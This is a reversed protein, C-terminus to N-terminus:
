SAAVCADAGARTKVTIVAKQPKDGLADRAFMGAWDYVRKIQNSEM